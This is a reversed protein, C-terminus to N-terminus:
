ILRRANINHHEFIPILDNHSGSAVSNTASRPIEGLATLFIRVDIRLSLKQLLCVFGWDRLKNLEVIHILNNSRAIAIHAILVVSAVGLVACRSTVSIVASEKASEAIFGRM